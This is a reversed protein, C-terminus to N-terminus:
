FGRPIGTIAILLLCSFRLLRAHFRMEELNITWETLLSLNMNGIFNSFYVQKEMLHYRERNIGGM